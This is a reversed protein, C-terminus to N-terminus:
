RLSSLGLIYFNNLLCSQFDWCEWEPALLRLFYELTEPSKDKKSDGFTTELILSLSPFYCFLNFKDALILDLLYFVFNGEEMDKPRLLCLLTCWANLISRETEFLRFFFFWEWSQGSAHSYTLKLLQWSSM